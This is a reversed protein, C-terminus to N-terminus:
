SASGTPSRRRAPRGVVGLEGRPDGGGPRQSAATTRGSAASRGSRRPDAGGELDVPQAGVDHGGPRRDRQAAQCPRSRTVASSTRRRRGGPAAAGGGARVREVRGPSSSSCSSCASRSCAGSGSSSGGSSPGSRGVARAPRRRGPRRRGRRSGSSRAEVSPGAAAGPLRRRVRGGRRAPRRGGLRGRVAAVAAGAARDARDGAGATAAYRGCVSVTAPRPSPPGAPSASPPTRACRGPRRSAPGPPRSCWRAGPRTPRAAAARPQSSRRRASRRSATRSPRSACGPATRADVRGARHGGPPPHCRDLPGHQRQQQVGVLAPVLDPQDRERAGAGLRAAAASRWGDLDAGDAASSGVPPRVGSAAPRSRAPRPAARPASGPGAGARRQQDHTVSPRRWRRAPDASRARRAPAAGAPDGLTTTSQSLPGTRSPSAAARAPWPRRTRGARRARHRHRQGPRRGRCRLAAQHRLALRATTGSSPSVVRCRRSRGSSTTCM